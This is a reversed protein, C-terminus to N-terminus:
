EVKEGGGLSYVYTAVEKVGADGLRATWAPMVGHKPSKVQSVVDEYTSGYLWIQDSLRPGGFEALGQGQDGHCAVCNETFVAQGATAAAADPPTQGSLQIVYNAVQAIKADELVGAGFAPMESTRTDADATYRIGHAITKYIDDPKGGWLWSDDNLNPYGIAGQAGSGHCQTCNVKFIAAGAAVAYNKLEDTKLITGMDAAAIKDGLAAKSAQVEAMTKEIDGRSSWGFYGKSGGSGNPIAPYVIVYGIAFLISAYFTWLWWAPLPNNYEKIGDWEHGTTAVDSTVDSERKASM